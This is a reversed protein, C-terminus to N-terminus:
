LCSFRGKRKGEKEKKNKEYILFLGYNKWKGGLKKGM